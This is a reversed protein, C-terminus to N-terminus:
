RLRNGYIRPLATQPMGAETRFNGVVVFAFVGRDEIQSCDRRDDVIEDDGGPAAPTLHVSNDLFHVANKFAFPGPADSEFSVAAIDPNKLVVAVHDQMHERRFRPFNVVQFMEPGIGGM